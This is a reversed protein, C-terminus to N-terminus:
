VEGRGREKCSLPEGRKAREISLKEYRLFRHEAGAFPRAYESVVRWGAREYFRRAGENEAFVELSRAGNAEAFALLASGAGGGPTAAFLMAIHGETLLLLGKVGGEDLVVLDALDRAFRAEFHATDFSLAAEGLIPRFHVAYAEAMLAAAAPTDEPLAPRIM